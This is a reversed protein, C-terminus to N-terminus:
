RENKNEYISEIAKFCNIYCNYMILFIIIRGLIHNTAWWLTADFEFHIFVGILYYLFMCAAYLLLFHLFKKIQYIM